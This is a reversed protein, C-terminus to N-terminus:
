AITNRKALIYTGEYSCEMPNGIDAMTIYADKEEELKMPPLSGDYVDRFNHSYVKRVTYGDPFFYHIFEIDDGVATVSPSYLEIKAIWGDYGEPVRFRTFTSNYEAEKIVGYVDGGSGDVNACAEDTILFEHGNATPTTASWYDVIYYCRGLSYTSTAVVGDVYTTGSTVYYLIETTSDAADYTCIANHIYQGWPTFCDVYVVAGQADAHNTHSRGYITGVGVMNDADPTTDAAEITAYTNTSLTGDLGTVGVFVNDGAQVAVSSVVPSAYNDYDWDYFDAVAPSFAVETTTDTTNYAASSTHSVGSNDIYYITVTGGDYANDNTDSKIVLTKETKGLQAIAISDTTELESQTGSSTQTLHCNIEYIHDKDYTRAMNTPIAPSKNANIHKKLSEYSEYNRWTRDKTNTVLNFGETGM